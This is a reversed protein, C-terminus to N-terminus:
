AGRGSCKKGGLSGRAANKRAAIVEAPSPVCGGLSSDCSCTGGLFEPINEPPIDDKDILDYLSKGVHVKKLIDKDIWRKAISWIKVFLITSNIIYLKSLTEPYFQADIESIRKIFQLATINLHKLGLGTCDIIAIHKTISNEFKRECAAFVKKIMFELVSVHLTCISDLDAYKTLPGVDYNGIRDIFIPTGHRDTKHISSGGTFRWFRQLAEPVGEVDGDYNGDAIGDIGRVSVLLPAGNELSLVVRDEIEGRWKIYKRISEVTSGADEKCAIYHRDITSDDVKANEDDGLEARILKLEGGPIKYEYFIKTCLM